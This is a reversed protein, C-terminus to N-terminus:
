QFPMKNDSILSNIDNYLIPLYKVSILWIVDESVTDYKFIILLRWRM